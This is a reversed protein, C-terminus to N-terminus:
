WMLNELVYCGGFYVCGRFSGGDCGYWNWNFVVVNVREFEVWLWGYVCAFGENGRGM